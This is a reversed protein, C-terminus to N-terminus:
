LLDEDTRQGNGTKRYAGQLVVIEPIGMNVYVQSYPEGHSTVALLLRFIGFFGLRVCCVWADCTEHDPVSRRLSM